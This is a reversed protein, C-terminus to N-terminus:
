AVRPVGVDCLGEGTWRREIKFDLDCLYEDDLNRTRSSRRGLGVGNWQRCSM